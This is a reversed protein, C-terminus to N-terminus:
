GLRKINFIVSPVAPRNYPTTQAPFFGASMGSDASAIRIGYQAGATAYDLISVTGIQEANNAVSIRSGSKPLDNGNKTLWFDVQQPGGSTTQFQISPVFEYTGSVPITITSNQISFGTNNYDFNGLNLSLPTNAALVTQTSPSTAACFYNLPNLISMTSAGITSNTTSPFFAMLATSTGANITSFFPPNIRSDLLYAEYPTSFTSFTTAYRIAIDGNQVNLNYETKVQNYFIIEARRNLGITGAPQNAGLRLQGCLINNNAVSFDSNTDLYLMNPAVGFANPTSEYLISSFPGARYTISSVFLANTSIQNTNLTSITANSDVTYLLRNTSINSDVYTARNATDRTYFGSNPDGSFGGLRYSSAFVQGTSLTSPNYVQLEPFGTASRLLTSPTLFLNSFTSTLPPPYSQGNISSVTFSSASLTQFSSITSTSGSPPPYSQGNISSITLSSTTISSPTLTTYSLSGPIVLTSISSVGSAFYLNDIADPFQSNDIYYNGGINAVGAINYPGWFSGTWIEFRAFNNPIAPDFLFPADANFALTSYIFSSVATWVRYTGQDNNNINQKYAYQGSGPWLVTSTFGPVFVNSYGGPIIITSITSPTFATATLSSISLDANLNITSANTINIQNGGVLNQIGSGGPPPYSQGNISSVYFSSTFLPGTVITSDGSILVKSSSLASLQLDLQSYLLTSQGDALFLGGSNTSTQVLVSTGNLETSGSSNIELGINPNAPTDILVQTTSPRINEVYLTQFTSTGLAALSVGNISSLSSIALVDLHSTTVTSAFLSSTYLDAFTSVTSVGGPEYYSIPQGNISSIQLLAPVQVTDNAVVTSAVMSSTYIAAFSSITEQPEYYSLPQGNITSLGRLIGTNSNEGFDLNRVTSLSLFQTNQLTHTRGSIVLDPLTGVAFPNFYPYIRYAYLDTNNVCEVGSPSEFRIGGYGVGGTAYQYLTGPFNPIVSPLGVCQNIGLTGYNFLYGTLSAIPAVAGAYVNVGAASLSIKSSANSLTGLPTNATLNISGGTGIGGTTGGNAVLNIAGYSTGGVGTDATLTINGGIGGKAQIDVMAINPNSGEDAVLTIDEAAVNVDPIGLISSVSISSFAQTAPPVYPQYFSSPQGWLTSVVLTSADIAGATLTSVRLSSISGEQAYLTSFFGTEASLTSTTLSSFTQSDPPVYPQYFSSPQGWLTSFNAADAELNLSSLTSIAHITSQATLTNVLISNAVLSSVTAKQTSVQESAFIGQAFTYSNNGADLIYAGKLTSDLAITGINSGGSRFSLATTEATTSLTTGTATSIIQALSATTSTTTLRQTPGAGGAQTITSANFAGVDQLNEGVFLVTSIAPFLSWDAVSSISSQSALLELDYYLQGNITSLHHGGGLGIYGNNVTITSCTLTQFSSVVTGGSSTGFLPVGESAFTKLPLVSM